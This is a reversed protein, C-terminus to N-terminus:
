PPPCCRESSVKAHGVVQSLSLGTSCAMCIGKGEGWGLGASGGLSKGMLGAEGACSGTSLPSDYPDHSDGSSKDM